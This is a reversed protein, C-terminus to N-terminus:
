QPVSPRRIQTKCALWLTSSYLRWILLKVTLSFSTLKVSGQWHDLHQVPSVVRLNSILFGIKRYLRKWFQTRRFGQTSHSSQSSMWIRRAPTRFRGPLKSPHLESGMSSHETGTLWPFGALIYSTTVSQFHLPSAYITFIILLISCLKHCNTSVFILKRHKQQSNQKWGKHNSDTNKLGFLAAYGFLTPFLPGLVIPVARVSKHGEDRIKLTIMHPHNFNSARLARMPYIFACVNLHSFRWWKSYTITNTFTM